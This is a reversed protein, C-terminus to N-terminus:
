SKQVDVQFKEFSREMELVFEVIKEVKWYKDTFLIVSESELVNFFYQADRVNLM